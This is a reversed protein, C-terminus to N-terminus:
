VHDSGCFSHWHRYINTIKSQWATFTDLGYVNLIILVREILLKHSSILRENKIQVM